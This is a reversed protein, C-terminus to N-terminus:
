ERQDDIWLRQKVFMSEGGRTNSGDSGRASGCVAGARKLRGSLCCRM